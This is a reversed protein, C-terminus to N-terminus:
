NAIGPHLGFGTFVGEEHLLEDWNGNTDKAIFRKNGHNHFLLRVVEEAMNTVSITNPLNDDVVFVEKPTVKIETFSYRRVPM